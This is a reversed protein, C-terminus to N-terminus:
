KLELLEQGLLRIVQAIRRRYQKNDTELRELEQRMAAIILDREVCTDCSDQKEMPSGGKTTTRPAANRLVAPVVLEVRTDPTGESGQLLSASRYSTTGKLPGRRAPRPTAQMTALTMM